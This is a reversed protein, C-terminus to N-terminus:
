EYLVCLYLSRLVHEVLLPDGISLLMFLYRHSRYPIPSDIYRKVLIGQSQSMFVFMTVYHVARTTFFRWDWSIRSIMYRPSNLFVTTSKGGVHGVKFPSNFIPPSQFQSQKREAYRERRARKMIERNLERLIRRPEDPDNRERKASAAGLPTSNETSCKRKRRRNNEDNTKCLDLHM